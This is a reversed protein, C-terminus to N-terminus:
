LWFTLLAWDRARRWILLGLPIEEFEFRSVGRMGPQLASADAPTLPTSRGRYIVTQGVMDPSVAISSLRIPAKSTPAADPRFVGKANEALLGRARTTVDVDIRVQEPDIVELIVGGLGVFSSARTELDESRVVGDIPAIIKARALQEELSNMRIAAREADIAAESLEAANRQGRASNRRAIAASLDARAQAMEAEIPRADMTALVTQGGVVHDGERVLVDAIRGDFPATVIRQSVPSVVAPLNVGDGVPFFGAGVVTAGVLAGIFLRRVIRLRRRPQAAAQFIESLPRAIRPDHAGNDLILAHSPREGGLILVGTDEAGGRLAKEVRGRLDAGISGRDTVKEQGSIWLEGIRGDNLTCLAAFPANARAALRDVFAQAAGDGGALLRAADAILGPPTNAATGSVRLACLIRLSELREHALAMAVQNGAPMAVSLPTTQDASIAMFAVLRTPSAAVVGGRGAARRAAERDKELDDPAGYTCLPAHGTESLAAVTRANTLAAVLKVLEALFDDHPREAGNFLNELAAGLGSPGGSQQAPDPTRHITQKVPNQPPAATM